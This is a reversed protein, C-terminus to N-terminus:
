CSARLKCRDIQLQSCGVGAKRRALNISSGPVQPNVAANLLASVSAGGDLKIKLPTARRKQMETTKVPTM